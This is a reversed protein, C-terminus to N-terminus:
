QLRTTGFMGHGGFTDASYDPEPAYDRTTAAAKPAAQAVARKASRYRRKQASRKAKVPAKRVAAKAPAKRVARKVTGKSPTLPAPSAYEVEPVYLRPANPDTAVGPGPVRSNRYYRVGNETWVEQAYPAGPQAGWIEAGFTLIFGAALIFIRLM